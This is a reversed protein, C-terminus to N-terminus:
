AGVFRGEAHLPAGEEGVVRFAGAGGEDRLLLRVRAPLLLPGRFTVHLRRLAAPDGGFRHEILAHAVRAETCFGHLIPRRFGFPRATWGWLHIPNYDGSARAYRRGASGPLTWRELEEWGPEPAPAERPAKAGGSDASRVLFLSTGESCLQEAGNWARSKVTLRLGRPTTEARELELRARVRDGPRHLRLPFLESELHVVGGLTLPIGTQALLELAAAAEWTACFTPPAVAGEGRFAAIREGDTARLYAALDRPRVPGRWEVAVRRRPATPPPAPEGRSRLARVALRAMARLHAAGSM